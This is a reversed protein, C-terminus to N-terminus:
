VLRSASKVAGSVIDGAHDIAYEVNGKAKKVLKEADSSLQEAQQKLYNAAEELQEAADEASRKLKRRTQAGSQPAYLLAIAAGVSAGIGFAFLYQRAKM